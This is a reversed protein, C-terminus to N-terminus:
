KVMPLILPLVMLDTEKEIIIVIIIIATSSIKTLQGKLLSWIVWHLLVM